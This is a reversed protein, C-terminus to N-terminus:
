REVERGASGTLVAKKRRAPWCLLIMSALLLVAALIAIPEEIAALIRSIAQGIRNADVSSAVQDWAIPSLAAQLASVTLLLGFGGAVARVMSGFGATRRAAILVIAALLMVIWMVLTFFHGVTEPWNADGFERALERALGKDVLGSAVIAPLNVALGLGILVALFMMMGGVISLTPGFWNYRDIPAAHVSRPPPVEGPALRAQAEPDLPASRLESRSEWVLLLRGDADTFHGILIRIGDILQGIGFLGFTCLWLLGTWIKGVYFRHLGNLGFLGALCLVTAWIRKCPSVAVATTGSPGPAPQPTFGEGHSATSSGGDRQMPSLIQVTLTIGALIGAALPMVGEFLAAFILGLGGAVFAHGMVLRRPRGPTTSRLWNLILLGACVAGLTGHFADTVSGRWLRYGYSEEIILGALMGALCTFICGLGGYGLRALGASEGALKLRKRALGIGTTGGIIMAGALLIRALPDALAGPGFSLLGSGIAMAGVAILAMYMRQTRPLAQDLTGAGALMAQIDETTKTTHGRGVAAHIKERAQAAAHRAAHRVDRVAQHLSPSEPAPRPLLPPPTSTPIPPAKPPPKPPTSSRVEAAARGAVMTLSNPAFLSVSNRVHASDYVDEVLEQVSQYRKTRDRDMARGIATAFPEGIGTLDPEASLHKMLIEGVSSGTYPPAGRLMEFLVVGLAYIDVSRDYSGEGIEPAMYHVTGVTMTQGSYRSPTMSKSLGYDGIKVRGDEYFINGPKLDRHVIGCDHLFSLGKGIERLFFAMKQVGLGMPADRLLDLLSPGSVYEMIVFPKKRDNYKVDFITVLHPSKLNMCQRVGRLEIEEYGQIAKLAVERGSDSVAFYVEGFGGRGVAHQITYGELPRDGHQYLFGEM